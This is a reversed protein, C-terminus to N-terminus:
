FAWNPPPSKKEGCKQCISDGPCSITHNESCRKKVETTGGCALCTPDWDPRKSPDENYEFALRGAPCEKRHELGHVVIFTESM